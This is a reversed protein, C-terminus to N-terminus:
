EPLYVHVEFPRFYDTFKGSRVALARDERFVAFKSGTFKPLNSFTAEMPDPQTNAAFIWPHGRHLKVLIEVGTWDSFGLERYDIRLRGPWVPAVLVGRLDRLERIVDRIGIWAPETVSLRYMAFELGTAGRIIANYTM